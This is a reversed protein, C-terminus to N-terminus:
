GFRLDIIECNTELLNLGKEVDVEKSILNLLVSLIVLIVVNQTSLINNFSVGAEKVEDLIGVRTLPRAVLLVRIKTAM